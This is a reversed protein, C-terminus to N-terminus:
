QCRDRGRYGVQTGYLRNDLLVTATSLSHTNLNGIRPRMCEKCYWSARPINKVLSCVASQQHSLRAVTLLIRLGYSGTLESAYVLLIDGCDSCRGVCLRVSGVHYEVHSMEGNGVGLLCFLSLPCNYKECDTM